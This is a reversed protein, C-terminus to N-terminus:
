VGIEMAVFPKSYDLHGGADEMKEGEILFQVKEVNYLSVLSNVISYVAIQENVSGNTIKTMFDNSVNVYCIGDETTTVDRIKADAPITIFNGKEKPGAILQEIVSKERPQNQSVEIEREEAVLKTGSENTFYLTVIEYRKSEPSVIPNLMVNERSMLGIPEGSTKKLAQGDVTIHVYDIFDLSTVSWVISCRCMIESGATLNYYTESLDIIAIDDEIDIHLVALDQPIVSVNGEKKSGNKLEKIVAEILEKRTDGYITREEARMKSTTTNNFYLEVTKQHNNESAYDKRQFVSLFIISIIMLFLVICWVIKTYNKKDSM